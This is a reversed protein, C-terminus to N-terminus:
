AWKIKHKKKKTFLKKVRLNFNFFIFYIEFLPAFIWLAEIKLRKMCKNYYIIQTIWKIVIPILVYQWPFCIFPLFILISYLLLTSFPLLSLRLKDSFAFIRRSYYDAYADRRFAKYNEFAPRLVFSKSDLNVATNYAKAYNNVFYDEQKCNDRYQKILGDNNFFFDKDYCINRGDAAYPFGLLAMGLSDMAKTAQRYQVLQNVFGKKSEIGCYGLIIKKNKNELPAVFSKLWDFDGVSCVIDSLVITKYSASRIGLALSYKRSEFRNINRQLNVVKINSYNQKLIYLIYETDDQSNENVIVVEFEPYDQELIKLLQNQLAAGNNNAVLVISIGENYNKIEENQKKRGKNYFIIRGYVIIYHLLQFVVIIGALISLGLALPTFQYNLFDLM